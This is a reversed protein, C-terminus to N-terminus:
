SKCTSQPSYVYTRVYCFTYTHTNIGWTYMIINHVHAFMIHIAQVWLPTIGITVRRLIDTDKKGGFKSLRDLKQRYIKELTQVCDDIDHDVVNVAELM